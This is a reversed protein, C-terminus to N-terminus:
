SKPTGCKPCFQASSDFQTACNKCYVVGSGQMPPTGVQGVVPSEQRTSGFTPPMGAAVSFSDHPLNNSMKKIVVILLIIVVLLLALITGLGAFILVFETYM